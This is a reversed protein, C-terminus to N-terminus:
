IRRSPARTVNSSSDSFTDSFYLTDAISGDVVNEKAEKHLADVEDGKDRHAETPALTELEM